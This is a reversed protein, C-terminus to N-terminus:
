PSSCPNWRAWKSEHHWDLANLYNTVDEVTV